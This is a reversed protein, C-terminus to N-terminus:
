KHRSQHKFLTHCGCMVAILDIVVGVRAFFFFSFFSFFAGTQDLVHVRDTVVEPSSQLWSRDERPDVRVVAHDVSDPVTEKGKLDVIIPNQCLSNSIDLVEPSHLTASFMLVQLRAAGTGGKPLNAFIRRVADRGGADLLRDAEDLVLFKVGSTPLKGSQIFEQVRGATGVIVDAGAGVTKAQRAASSGGALLVTKIGPAPLHVAFQAINAHTQEALDRTPELIIAIPGSGSSEDKNSAGADLWSVLADPPALALGVAGSPLEHQFPAAGFNVELEANKMCTAPHLPVGCMQLPLEFALGLDKGNRYFSVEGADCDLLCGVTDRQGFAEGYNVFQRAHVRMGTGGYGVGLKDTGLDLSASLTAWGVRCLGEDRVTVEYYVKGKLAGLTARCGGWSQPSRAQCALGDPSVAVVDSRDAVNLLCRNTAADEAISCAAADAAPQQTPRCRAAITEHVLQLVPLAFAGTKGTGTEAAAM